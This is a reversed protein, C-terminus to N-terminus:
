ISERSKRYWRIMRAEIKEFGVNLAFGLVAITLLAAYMEPLRIADRYTMMLAGVGTGTTIMEVFVALILALTLGVRLGAMAYPLAGPVIIRRMLARRGYGYTRATDLLVPDISRVGDICNLLIPWFAAWAIVFVKMQVGFGLVLVVIPIIAVAPTPRLLELTPELLGYLWRFQGILFGLPAAVLIAVGYGLLLRGLTELTQLPIESSASLNWLAAAVSSFPPLLFHLGAVLRSVMEWLVLMAAILLYGTAPSDAFGPKANM